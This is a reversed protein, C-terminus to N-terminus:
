CMVGHQIQSTWRAQGHGTTDSCGQATELQKRTEATVIDLKPEVEM